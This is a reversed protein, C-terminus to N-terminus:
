AIREEVNDHQFAAPMVRHQRLSLQANLDTLALFAALDRRYKLEIFAGCGRRSRRHRRPHRAAASFASIGGCSRLKLACHLPEITLLAEAKDDSLVSSLIHEEVDGDDISRSNLHKGLALLDPHPHHRGLLTSLRNRNRQNILRM